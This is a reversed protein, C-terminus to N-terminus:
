NRQGIQISSDITSLYHLCASMSGEYGRRHGQRYSEEFYNLAEALTDWGIVVRKATTLLLIDDTEVLAVFIM